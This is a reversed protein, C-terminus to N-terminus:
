DPRAEQGVHRESAGKLKMCGTNDGIAAIAAVEEKSFTVDPLAALEDVKSEVTRAGEYAEQILTPVVCKVPEQSLNWICSFQLATLGHKEAIPRIKELKENGHEV